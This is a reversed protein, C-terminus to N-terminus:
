NNHHYKSEYYSDPIYTYRHFKIKLKRINNVEAYIYMTQFFDLNEYQYNVVDEVTLGSFEKITNKLFFLERDLMYTRLSLDDVITEIPDAKYICKEKNLNDLYRENQFSLGNNQDLYYKMNYGLTGIEVSMHYDITGITNMIWKRDPFVGDHEKRYCMVACIISRDLKERQFVTLEKM